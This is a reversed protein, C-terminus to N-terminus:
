VPPIYLDIRELREEVIKLVYYFFRYSPNAALNHRHGKFIASAMRADHCWPYPIVTMVKIEDGDKIGAERLTFDCHREDGKLLFFQGEHLYADRRHPPLDELFIEGIIRRAAFDCRLDLPLCVTFREGTSEFIVTTKVRPAGDPALVLVGKDDRLPILDGFADEKRPCDKDKDLLENIADFLQTMGSSYSTRFDAYRKPRLLPPIECTAIILPIILVDRDDIERVIATELERQVWNSKVASPSLVIFFLDCSSLGESIRQAISDGADIEKEDIWVRLDASNLDLVLQSVFEKDQSSYSIFIRPGPQPEPDKEFIDDWDM